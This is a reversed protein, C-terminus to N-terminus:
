INKIKNNEYAFDEFDSILLPKSFVYGQIYDCGVNKLFEVQELKEIGEATVKMGLRKSLEIISKIVVKGRDINNKSVFFSRDLKIIDVKFDKLIGLSSYGFGFDDISCKFGNSHIDDIIDVAEPNELFISETLELDILYTPVNYKNCILKYKELFLKDNLHQRSVNVSIRLVEKGEKIWKSILKCTEELIYLDLKCIFGSKEFLPIFDSPYIIGKESNKWRVLSEAGSIKGSKIDIKPQLCMFFEKNELAKEMLNSIEKESILRKREIDSYFSFDSQHAKNFSKRATNAHDQITILDENHNEITYIGASIRLFYPNERNKNFYNIDAEIKYLLELAELVPRNKILLYFLDADHRCVFEENEDINKYLVNYLHKLTLNGKKSGFCDNILKFDKINIAVMMYTSDPSELILPKVLISFKTSNIGNTISDLYAINEIQNVYKRRIIYLILTIIGIICTIIFTMIITFSNLKNLEGLVADEPVILVFHWDNLGKTIPYYTLLCQVGKSSTITINGSKDNKFDNLMKQAWPEDGSSKYKHGLDKILETNKGIFLPRGQSNIIEITGEGNFNDINLIEDMSEKNSVGILISSVEHNDNFIPVSYFVFGMSEIVESYEKGEIGKKYSDTNKLDFKKGSLFEAKGELDIIGIDYYKYSTKRKSLYEYRSDGEYQKIFDAMIRLDSLIFKIKSDVNMVIQTSVDNLYNKSQKSSINHLKVTNFVTIVLISIILSCLIISLVLSNKKYRSLKM